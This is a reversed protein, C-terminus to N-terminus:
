DKWTTSLPEVIQTMGQKRGTLANILIKLQPCLLSEFELGVVPFTAMGHSVKFATTLHMDRKCTVIAGHSGELEMIKNM